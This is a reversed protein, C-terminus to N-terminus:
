APQLMELEAIMEVFEHCSECDELECDCLHVRRHQEYAFRVEDIELHEM